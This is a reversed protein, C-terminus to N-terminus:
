RRVAVIVAVPRNREKRKEETHDRIETRDIATKLHSRAREM